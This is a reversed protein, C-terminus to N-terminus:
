KVQFIGKSQFRYSTSYRQLCPSQYLAKEISSCTKAKTWDFVRISITFKSFNYAILPWLFFLVLITLYKYLVSDTVYLIFICKISNRMSIFGHYNSINHIYHSYRKGSSKESFIKCFLSFHDFWEPINIEIRLIPLCNFHYSVNKFFTKFGNKSM